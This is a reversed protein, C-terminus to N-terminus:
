DEVARLLDSLVALQEPSFFLMDAASKNENYVRSLRRARLLSEMASERMGAQWECVARLAWADAWRGNSSLVAETAASRAAAFDGARYHVNAMGIQAQSMNPYQRLADSWLTAPQQWILQRRLNAAYELSLLFLLGAILASGGFGSPYKIRLPQVLVAAVMGLGALSVYLYRDAIPHYQAAFNSAPLLCLVYVAVGLAALRSM